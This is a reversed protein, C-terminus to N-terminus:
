SWGAWLRLTEGSGGKAAGEGATATGPHHCSQSARTGGAPIARAVEGAVARHDVARSNFAGSALDHGSCSCGGSGRRLGARAFTGHSRPCRHRTAYYHLLRDCGRGRDSVPDSVHEMLGRAGMHPDYRLEFEDVGQDDQGTHVVGIEWAQPNSAVQLVHSCASSPDSEPRYWRFRTKGEVLVLGCRIAASRLAELCKIRTSVRVIHSM